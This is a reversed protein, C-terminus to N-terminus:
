IKPPQWIDFARLGIWTAMYCGNLIREISLNTSQFHLVEREFAVVQWSHFDCAQFPLNQDQPQQDCCFHEPCYHDHIFEFLNLEPNENLHIRFHMWLSPM